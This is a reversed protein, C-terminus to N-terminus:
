DSDSDSSDESSSQDEDDDEDNEDDDDSDSSGSTEDDEDSDSSDSKETSDSMDQKARYAMARKAVGVTQTTARSGAAKGKATVRVKAGPSNRVKATSRRKSSSFEKYVARDQPSLSEVWDELEAKYEGQQEEVMKKYKDKQSQTLKHWRKGIEVMREKLSFHNLEGNTLLEQSFM